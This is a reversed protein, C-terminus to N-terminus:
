KPTAPDTPANPDPEAAPAIPGGGVRGTNINIPSTEDQISDPPTEALFKYVIRILEQATIKKANFLPIFAQTIRQAALSLNANDRETIDPVNIDIHPRTPMTHDVNRRVDLVTQLINALAHRLFSQRAKFHKFTPTGAADATTSTSSEPEALYHMPLSAGTAIMRKITLGDLEAEYSALQPSISGLM